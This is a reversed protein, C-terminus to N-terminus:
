NLSKGGDIPIVAGTIYSAMDSVLYNVLEAVEEPYGVRGLPINPAYVEAPRRLLRTKIFGPCVCNVRIGVSAYNKALMKSMKIVAAKSISYAYSDGLTCNELGSNSANNIIVGKNKELLHKAYKVCLYYSNLNVDFTNKWDVYEIDPLDQSPVSIGVNNFLIDVGKYVDAIQRFVEEVQKEITVDCKFFVANGGMKLIETKIREGDNENRGLLIVTIGEKSLRVATAAGIGATAGTIVAIKETM